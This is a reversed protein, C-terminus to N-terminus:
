SVPNWVLGTCSQGAQGSGESRYVNPQANDHSFAHDHMQCVQLMGHDTDDMEMGEIPNVTSRGETEIFQTNRIGVPEDGRYRKNSSRGSCLVAGL